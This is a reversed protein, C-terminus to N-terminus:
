SVRNGLSRLMMNMGAADLFRQEDNKLWFIESGAGESVMCPM